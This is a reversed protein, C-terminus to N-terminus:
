VPEKTQATGPNDSPCLPLTVTVETGRGPTSAVSVTGNHAEVINSLISLGLGSGHKKTTYFPKFIEKVHKEEIGHGNDTIAVVARGATERLAIDITGGDEVAQIANLLINLLAQQLRKDDCAIMLDNDPFSHTVSINKGGSDGEILLMSRLIIKQLSHPRTDQPESRAFNLYGTLIRNLEDVEESIYGFMEDEIAYQKRIREASTKIISLPNRIEHAIGAVMRGMTALNEGQLVAEQARDLSISQRYFLVGLLLIVVISSAAILIIASRLSNLVLFYAAGAEVGVIGTVRDRTDHLPAYASKMYIDGSKYLATSAPFGSRAFTFASFDLDIFPNYEGPESLNAIDIVTTGEPTLVLINSLLNETKAIFLLSYLSSNTRNEDLSDPEAFEITSALLVAITQLREGLENDLHVKARQYLTYISFNFVLLFALLLGSLLYIRKRTSSHYKM